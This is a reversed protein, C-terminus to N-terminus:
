YRTLSPDVDDIWGLIGGSLNRVRDFGAERLMRSAQTSRGGSRCYVVIPTEKPLEGMRRELDGLPIEHTSSLKAIEREYPERVDLLAIREERGLLDRLTRPMIDSDSDISRQVESASPMGVTAGDRLERISPNDGCVPCSPDKSINLTAFRMELADYVLLRGVLPQGVGAILKIAETAQILGIVGPLVGLVGAEACSPVAGPPPATPFLCRYCPGRRADFVSAQGEFRYVSGYVDPKGALVCADNLLFRTTFNDSGDVIVDYGAILDLAHSADFRFPYRVVEVHPNLDAIRSAASEVKPLGIASSSHIVQRQLNSADVVDDDVLGLRGVGAAALYLGLPSGLGGAGVLLVSAGKLARQGALGLEPLILHRSYRALEERSLDTTRLLDM